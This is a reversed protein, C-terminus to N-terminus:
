GAGCLCYMSAPAKRSRRPLADDVGEHALRDINPTRNVWRDEATTALIEVALTTVGLILIHKNTAM